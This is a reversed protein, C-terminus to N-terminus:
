NSRHWDSIAQIVLDFTETTESDLGIQLHSVGEAQWQDFADLLASRDAPIAERPDLEAGPEADVSLGVTIPLTALDRGETECAEVFQARRNAWRETPVGYFAANWIDGHRAALRHMRERSSGIMIPIRRRPAPLLVLDEVNTWDGKFTVRQGRVLPAIVQLAEEFRGVRHDFPYGFADFEPKHWGCGLGLILRGGCVEDVTAAIKALMGPPRFPTASVLTGLEVRKTVAALASVITWCEHLGVELEGEGRILLQDEIWLSDVGGAEARRALAEIEPWSMPPREGRWGMPIMIGIKM